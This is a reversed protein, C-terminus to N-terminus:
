EAGDESMEAKTMWIEFTAMELLSELLIINSLM